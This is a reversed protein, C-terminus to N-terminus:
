DNKVKRKEIENVKDNWLLVANKHYGAKMQAPLNISMYNYGNPSELPTWNPLHIQSDIDSPTPNGYKAYNAFLQVYINKIKYDRDDFEKPHIGVLYTLDFAHSPSLGELGIKEYDFSYLYVTAGADRLTRAEKFSPVFYNTDDVMASIQEPWFAFPTTANRTNDMKAMLSYTKKCEQSILKPNSYNKDNVIFDCMLSATHSNANPFGKKLYAGENKVTGTMTSVPRREAIM